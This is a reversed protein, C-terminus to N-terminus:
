SGIDTNRADSTLRSAAQGAARFKQELASLLPLLEGAALTDAISEIHKAAASFSLFGLTAAASKLSHAERKLRARDGSALLESMRQLQPGTEALFLTLAEFATERGIDEILRDFVPPEFDAVSQSPLIERVLAPFDHESCRPAGADISSPINRWQPRRVLGGFAKGSRATAASNTGEVLFTKIPL